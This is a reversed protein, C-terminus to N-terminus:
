TAEERENNLLRGLVPYQEVEYVQGTVPASAPSLWFLAHRAIDDPMLLRGSPKQAKPLTHEWGEPRGLKQQLEDETRTFTWGVNLCNVRIRDPGLAHGLNRTLTAIAGKAMSYALLDSQGGWANISGINVISGAAKESRMAAVAARTVLLTARANVAMVNDFLAADTAALDGRPFIGAANVVGDLCGLAERAACVLAEAEEPHALDATLNPADDLTQAAAAVKAATSGHIFVRAGAAHALKAIAFGIGSSSGTVLVRMGEVGSM